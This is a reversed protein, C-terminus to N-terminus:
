RKSFSYQESKKFCRRSTSPILDSLYKPSMGKLIKYFVCLKRYCHREQLSELGLESCMKERSTRRIAGKISLAANYKILEVKKQFTRVSTTLMIQTLNLLLNISKYFLHDRYFIESSGFWSANVIFSWEWIYKTLAKKIPNGSFITHLHYSKNRKRLFIVEQAQNLSDPNFSM